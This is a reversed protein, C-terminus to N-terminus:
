GCVSRSYSRSPSRSGDRDSPLVRSYVSSSRSRSSNMKFRARSRPTFMAPIAITSCIRSRISSIFRCICPKTSYTRVSISTRMCCACLWCPGPSTGSRRGITIGTRSPAPAAPLALDLILYTQWCNAWLHVRTGRRLLSCTKKVGCTIFGDSRELSCHYRNLPCRYEQTKDAAASRDASRHPIYEPLLKPDFGPNLYPALEQWSLTVQPMGDAYSAVQYQGFTITLGKTSLDWQRGNAVASSIGKKLEDGQWLTIPSGRLKAITPEVLATQWKSGPRLIDDVTLARRRDVSWLYSKQGTLPHAAGWRYTTCLLDVDILHDNAASIYFFGSLYGDTHVAGNFRCTKEGSICAESLIAATYVSANWTAHEHDPADVQPWAFEGYGFGPNNNAGSQDKDPPKGPVYVFHARTYFLVGNMRQIGETLQDVRETYGNRLCPMVDIVPNNPPCTKDLYALWERQDARVLAASPSTLQALAANYAKALQDDLASLATSSCILKERPTSAAHCKVRTAHAAPGALLAILFPLSSYPM